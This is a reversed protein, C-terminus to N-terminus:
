SASVKLGFGQIRFGFGQLVRLGLRVDESWAADAALATSELSGCWPM